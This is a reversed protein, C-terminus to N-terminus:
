RSRAKPPAGAGDDGDSAFTKVQHNGSKLMPVSTESPLGRAAMLAQQRARDRATQNRIKMMEDSLAYQSDIESLKIDLNAKTNNQTSIVKWDPSAWQVIGWGFAAIVISMFGLFRAVNLADGSFHFTDAISVLLGITLAILELAWFLMGLRQQRKSKYVHGKAYYSSIASFGVVIVCGWGIVNLVVGQGSFLKAIETGLVASLLFIAGIYVLGPIHEWLSGDKHAKSIERERQEHDDVWKYTPANETDDFQESM